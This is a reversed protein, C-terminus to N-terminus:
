ECLISHSLFAHLSSYRSRRSGQKGRCPKEYIHDFMDDPVNKGGILTHHRYVWFGSHDLRCKKCLYQGCDLCFSNARVLKNVSMKRACYFFAIEHRCSSTDKRHAHVCDTCLYYKCVKCIGVAGAEQRRSFCPACIMNNTGNVQIEEEAESYNSTEDVREAM